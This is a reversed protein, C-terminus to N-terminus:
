TFDACKDYDIDNPDVQLTVNYDMGALVTLPSAPTIWKELGYCDVTTVQFNTSFTTGAANNLTFIATVEETVEGFLEYFSHGGGM